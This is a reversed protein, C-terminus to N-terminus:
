WEVTAKEEMVGNVNSKFNVELMIVKIKKVIPKFSVRYIYVKVRKSLQLLPVNIKQIM